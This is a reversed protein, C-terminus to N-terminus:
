SANERFDDAGSPAFAQLFTTVITSLRQKEELPTPPLAGLLRATREVGVLMSVLMEAMFRPNEGQIEGRVVAREMVLTLQRLTAEPGSLYVSRALQPFRGAESILMRYMALGAESLLLARFAQGFELLVARLDQREEQLPVLFVDTGQRIVETFLNEKNGFHNYLTQKAVGVSSALQEMSTATYGKELFLKHAAHILERRRQRSPESQPM